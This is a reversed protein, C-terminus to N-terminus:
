ELAKSPSQAGELRPSPAPVLTNAVSKPFRSHAGEGWGDPELEGGKSEGGGRWIGGHQSTKTPRPELVDGVTRSFFDWLHPAVMCQCHGHFHLRHRSAVASRASMMRGSRSLSSYTAAEIVQEHGNGCSM